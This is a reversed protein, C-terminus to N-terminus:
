PRPASVGAAPAARETLLAEFPVEVGFTARAFAWFERAARRERSGPPLGRCLARMVAVAPEIRGSRLLLYVRIIQQNHRVTPAAHSAHPASLALYRTASGVDGGQLARAALHPLLAPDDRAAALAREGRLGALLRQAYADSELSWPRYEALGPADWMAHLMPYRYEAYLMLDLLRQVPFAAVTAERLSAPWRRAVWPSELFNAAAAPDRLMGLYRAISADLGAPVSPAVRHPWDDVLPPATGVWASLREGDALFLAGLHEPSPIGVARLEAGVKPDAWQRSFVEASVPGPPSERERTAVMMWDLGAGGWLSCNPFVDCFARLISKTESELLQYVPLWYTVMGGEALRAEILEFYERSYLNEVGQHRLPPPEATILDYREASALLFFRGDEVHLRVRPDRTPNEDPDPYVVESLEFVDRSIDVVDIAELGRTDVLASATTGLGFSILLARRPDPHIAVPLFVYAKMYRRSRIRTSAMYYNNTALTFDWPEGKLDRRYYMATETVGERVAALEHGEEQMGHHITGPGVAISSRLSDFPFVVLAVLAVAYPLLALSRREARRRPEEAWWLAVAIAVYACALVFFCVEVGLSPILLFGAALSGAGGGLTNCLAVQGAARAEPVGRSAVARGLMTFLVGSVFATPFMLYALQLETPRLALLPFRTLGWYTLSVIAANLCALHPLLVHAEPRRRFLVSAAVGGAGIGALVVALMVALNWGLAPHFLQLFRFWVLELAMLVAGCGAAALLLLRAPVRPTPDPAPSRSADGSAAEAALRHLLMAAAAAVGDLTAAAAAAGRVGLQTVLFAETLLVGGVAGLTNWGYLRGLVRGFNGDFRRLAAVMVPLTMGMAVAPVLMLLFALGLRLGNLVLPTDLFPRLLPAVVGALEALGWVLALGTVAVALELLAYVRLPDRLRDGIRAAIANGLAMGLMFSCLVLSVAWVSNGLVLKAVRFFLAEFALAATGSLAFVVVAAIEVSRQPHSETPSSM